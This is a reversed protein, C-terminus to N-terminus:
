FKKNIRKNHRKISKQITYEEETIPDVEKVTINTSPKSNAKEKWCSIGAIVLLIAGLILAFVLLIGLYQMVLIFILFLFIFAFIM